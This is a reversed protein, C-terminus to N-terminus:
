RAVEAIIRKFEDSSIGFARCAFGLIKKESEEVVGDRFAAQCLNKFLRQHSFRERLGGSLEVGALQRRVNNFMKMFMEDPVNLAAKLKKILEQEAPEIQGDRMIELLVMSFFEPGTLPKRETQGSPQQQPTKAVALQGVTKVFEYAAEGSFRRNIKELRPQLWESIQQEGHMQPILDTLMQMYGTALAFAGNNIFGEIQRCYQQIKSNALIGHESHLQECFDELSMDLRSACSNLHRQVVALESYHMLLRLNLAAFDPNAIQGSELFWAARRLLANFYFEDRKLAENFFEQAKIEQGTKQYLIGLNCWADPAEAFVEIAKRYAAEAATTDNNLRQCLGLLNYVRGVGADAEIVKQYSAIAAATDGTAQAGIGRAFHGTLDFREFKFLLNEEAASGQTQRNLAVTDAGPLKAMLQSDASASALMAGTAFSFIALGREIAMLSVNDGAIEAWAASPLSFDLRLLNASEVPVVTCSM